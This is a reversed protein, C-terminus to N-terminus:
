SVAREQMTRAIRASRRRTVLWAVCVGAAGVGGLVVAPAMVSLVVGGFAGVDELLSIVPNAIGATTLSSLARVKAKAIGVVASAAGGGVLGLAVATLPDFERIMSAAAITVATPKLVVGIVDM